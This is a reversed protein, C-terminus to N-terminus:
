VAASHLDPGVSRVTQLLLSEHSKGYVLVDKSYTLQMIYLIHLRVTFKGGKWDSATSFRTKSNTLDYRIFCFYRKSAITFIKLVLFIM